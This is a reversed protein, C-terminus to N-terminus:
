VTLGSLKCFKYTSIGKSYSYVFRHLSANDMLVVHLQM